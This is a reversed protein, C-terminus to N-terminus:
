PVFVARYFRRSFNTADNDFVQATGTLNAVNTLTIWLSLNTSADIRYSVNTVGTLSFQLNGSPLPRVPGFSPPPALVVKAVRSTVSGAWNTILVTYSGFDNSGVHTLTLAPSATGTIGDGDVINTGEKRWQYSLPQPGTAAVSLSVPTGIYNTRNAPQTTVAPASGLRFVTGGNATGGLPTTGYFAGDGGRILPAGPNRGDAGSGFHHLVETYNYGSPSGTMWVRAATGYSQTGGFKTLVYVFNDGGATLGYPQQGDATGAFSHAVVDPYGSADLEFVTGMGADGGLQTVFYLTGNASLVIQSYPSKGDWGSFWHMATLGSGDSYVKYVTGNTRPGGSMLTGYLAGDSGQALGGGPYYGASGDPLFAQIQAYGTSDPNLKFISGYGNTGGRATTGYLLGDLGLLLQCQPIHGGATFAGFNYLVTFGFADPSVRFVTGWGLGGYQTTGYLMGDSMQLLGSVPRSGDGGSFSKLVAFGTGDTNIRFVTGLDYDGGYETTGYLAGDSGQILPASPNAGTSRNPSGFNGIPQETWQGLVPDAAGLAVWGFAIPLLKRYSAFVREKLSVGPIIPGQREGLLSIFVM